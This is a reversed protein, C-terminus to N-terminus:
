YKKLLEFYKRGVTFFRDNQYVEVIQGKENIVKVVWTEDVGYGKLFRPRVVCNHAVPPFLEKDHKTLVKNKVKKEQNVAKVAKVEEM